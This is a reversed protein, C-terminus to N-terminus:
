VDVDHRTFFFVNGKIFLTWDSLCRGSNQSRGEGALEGCDRQGESPASHAPLFLASHTIEGAGHQASSPAGDCLHAKIEKGTETVLTM